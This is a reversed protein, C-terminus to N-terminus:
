EIIYQVPIGTASLDLIDEAESYGDSAIVKLLLTDRYYDRPLTFSIKRTVAEFTIWNTEEIKEFDMTVKKSIIKYLINYTLSDQDIFTNLDFSFEEDALCTM